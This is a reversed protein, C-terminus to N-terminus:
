QLTHPEAADAATFWDIAERAVAPPVTHPGDFERYRVAFGLRQMTAVVTRGCPEIPLVADHTGHSVFVRPASRARGAHVFGPSFAIVHTFLGPNRIGLALAYSAGDSFGAAAVRGPDIEYRDAAAAIAADVTAVDMGIEGGILDWTAGRSQPAVVVLGREEALSRLLDLVHEARGGAGHFLVVLPRPGEGREGLLWAEGGSDLSLHELGGRPRTRPASSAVRAALVGPLRGHVEHQAPSACSSVLIACVGERFPLQMSVDIIVAV